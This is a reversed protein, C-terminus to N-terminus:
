LLFCRGEQQCHRRGIRFIIEYNQGLEALTNSHSLISGVVPLGKVRNQRNQQVHELGRQDGTSRRGDIGQERFFMLGNDIAHHTSAQSQSRVILHGQQLVM